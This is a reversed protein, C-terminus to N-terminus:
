DNADISMGYGCLVAEGGCGCPVRDCGLGRYARQDAPQAGQSGSCAAM